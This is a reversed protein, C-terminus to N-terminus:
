GESSQVREPASARRVLGGLAYGSETTVLREPQAPDVEILQRLKFIVNRLRGDDRLPHYTTGSWVAEVLQEKSAAGGCGFLTALVGWLGARDALPITRGGTLWVSCGDDALGWPEGECAPLTSARPM